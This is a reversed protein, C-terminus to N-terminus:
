KKLEVQALTTRRTRATKPEDAGRVDEKSSKLPAEAARRSPTVVPTLDLSLVPTHRGDPPPSPATEPAFAALRKEISKDLKLDLLRGLENAPRRESSQEKEKQRAEAARSDVTAITNYQQSRKPGEARM